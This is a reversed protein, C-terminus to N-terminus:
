RGKPKPSLVMLLKRLVTQWIGGHREVYGAQWPSYAVTKEVYAGDDEFGQQM